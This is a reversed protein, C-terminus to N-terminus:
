LFALKHRKQAKKGPPAEPAVVICLEAAVELTTMHRKTGM